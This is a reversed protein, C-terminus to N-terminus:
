GDGRLVNHVYGELADLSAVNDGRSMIQEKAYQPIQDFLASARPDKALLANLDRYTKKEAM